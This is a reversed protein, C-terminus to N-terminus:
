KSNFGFYMLRLRNKILPFIMCTILLCLYRYEGIPITLGENLMLAFNNLSCLLLIGSIIKFIM